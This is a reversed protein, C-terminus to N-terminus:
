NIICECKSGYLKLDQKDKLLFEYIRDITEKTTHIGSNINYGKENPVEGFSLPRLFKELFYSVWSYEKLGSHVYMNSWKYIRYITSLEFPFKINQKYTDLADFLTSMSLPILKGNNDIYSYVGFAQRLRVEILQRIVLISCGSHMDTFSDYSVQGFLAQRLFQHLPMFHEHTRSSCRHKTEVEFSEAYESSLVWFNL